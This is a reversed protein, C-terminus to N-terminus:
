TYIGYAEEEPTFVYWHSKEVKSPDIGFISALM